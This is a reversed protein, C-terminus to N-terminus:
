VLRWCLGPIRECQEEKLDIQKQNVSVDIMGVRSHFFKVKEVIGNSCHIDGLMGLSFGVVCAGLASIISFEM